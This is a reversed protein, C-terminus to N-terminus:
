LLPRQHQPTQQQKLLEWATRDSIQYKPCLRRIAASLSEGDEVLAALENIFQAKKLHRLAAECRPIYLREGAYHYCLRELTIEDIDDRCLRLAPPMVGATAPFEVSIGGILEVLKATDDVGIVTIIEQVSQPLLHQADKINM